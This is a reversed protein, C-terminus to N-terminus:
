KAGTLSPLKVECGCDEGANKHVSQYKLEFDIIAKLNEWPVASAIPRGNIFMTPTSNVGLERAEAINRDVEGETAKSDLCGGIAEADLGRNRAFEILNSRFNQPTISGQNDFVWDHYDWFAAANQRFVCRGAMAAPKAWPHIQVLPYDKFYLRVQKPYAAVLKQRLMKGEEKCYQCQFDSFLVIVVTAGPTGLSPSFEPKLKNLEPRFPNDAVDYVKGKLIRRGDKSVLYTNEQFREGVSARVAFESFGDLAAPRPDAIAVQIYDPWLELHRIYEELTKKDLASKKAPAAAAPPKTQALAASLAAAAVAVAVVIRSRM